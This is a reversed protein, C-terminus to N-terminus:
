NVMNTPSGKLFNEINEIFIRQKLLRAENTAYALPPYLICNKYKSILEIQEPSMEDTHDAIYVLDSKSLRAGLAGFDVLENPALNVLVAGPKIKDIRSKNMFNETDNNSALHLSIFDCESLLKDLDEYNIGKEEFNRKRNRSWYVVSAGFALALEAVRGGIKGLGVVGFKKGKIESIPTSPTASFNGKRAMQRENELDRIHSLIVGLAFESVSETSYGPINCVVIGKKAAYDADVKGFATSIVGIYKLRPALDLIGKNVKYLFPDVLMCDADELQKVIELSDKDLNITKEALLNIKQWYGADLGLKSIGVLVIKHFKV